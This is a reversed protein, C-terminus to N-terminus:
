FNLISKLEPIQNEGPIEYDWKDITFSWSKEIKQIIKKTFKYENKRYGQISNLYELFIPKIKSFGKINLRSYINKLESIPDEELNEFKVEVLNREPILQKDRFFDTMMKKYIDIIYNEIEEDSLKQLMFIQIAKKYFNKTSVFVTYPNRYIHIFKSTPFLELLTKIRSTNAPSKLILQKGKNYYTIKKLLYLYKEKWLNIIKKSLGKFRIFHDYHENMKRPLYWGNYFSYLILNGMSMEEETPSFIGLKMNDMPRTEPIYNKLVVHSIMNSLFLKPFTAQIMNIFGFQPDQCLLNQLHTTGTRWHGIIFIPPKSIYTKKLIKRFRLSEYIEFPIFFTKFLNILLIRPFYYKFNNKGEFLFLKMWNKFSLGISPGLKNLVDKIKVM